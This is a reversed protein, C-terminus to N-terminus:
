RVSEPKLKLINRLPSETRTKRATSDPNAPEFLFCSALVVAAGIFLGIGRLVDLVPMGKELWILGAKSFFVSGLGFGAVTLGTILGKHMPFWKVSTALPCVYGFGIGAGAVVGFGALLLPYSGGSFSGGLYGALFLVGGAAGIRRPGYKQQLIGGFVMSVTFSAICVGFILGDHGPHVGHERSLAPVFTSWAYVVGLCSQMLISAGLVLWRKM